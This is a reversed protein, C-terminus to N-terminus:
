EAGSIFLFPYLETAIIYLQQAGFLYQRRLDTKVAFEYLSLIPTVLLAKLCAYQAEPMTDYYNMHIATICKSRKDYVAALASHATFWRVSESSSSCCIELFCRLLWFKLCRRTIQVFVTTMARPSWLIDLHVCRLVVFWVSEGSTWRTTVSLTVIM